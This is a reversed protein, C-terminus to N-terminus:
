LHKKIKKQDSSTTIISILEIFAEKFAKNIVKEKNFNIDFPESIELDKIKFTSASSTSISIINIILVISFFFIYLKNLNSLKNKFQM